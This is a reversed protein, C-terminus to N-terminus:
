PLDYVEVIAIGVTNNVGSVQATYTGPPLTVILAADRSGATLAFAGVSGFAATLEAATATAPAVPTSWNDNTTLPTTDGQRIVELKPDALTGTVGLSGLTPGVGRILLRRPSTGRIVFGGTLVDAGTGVRARCSLNVLTTPTADLEYVEVLAVGTAAPGTGVGSVQITYGGPPLTTVLAADRSGDALAFAGQAAGASKLAAIDPVNGWDDNLLVPQNASDFVTVTPNALTGGLGFAALTPGVARILLTKPKTGRITIGPIVVNAGTGVNARASLNVLGSFDFSVTAPASAVSGASNTAVCTFDGAYAATLNTLELVPETTNCFDQGRCLWTYTPKPFGTAAATLTISAGLTTRVSQPQLTFEPASSAPSVILDVVTAASGAVNAATITVARRGAATPAGSLLGTRADLALGAPLSAASWTVPSNAASLALRFPQGVRARAIATAAFVPPKATTIRDPLEAYNLYGIFMEDNTQEGFRVTANPNPNFPNQASNDFAGRVRIVTGAPLRKPQALRYNSQWDFHYDPVNLLTESTGDPYHAEYRFRKGRYHMHPNLEYLLVDKTSSPTFSAEREYDKAGPPISLSTTNASKTLLERTPARSAFYFGLQTEDTEPQGTTTYHMQVTVKSGRRLFKGSDEPFFTQDVGPVYGAFFGNLGPLGTTVLALLQELQSGELVLAHHVVRRNGPKVYVARLWKDETTPLTLEPYDYTLTGTARLEKKPLSLVLDPPGLPWDGGPPPPAVALPDAAFPGRPGGARAWHYLTASEAPTLAASNAFVGYRPDAHWPSMRKVLMSQRIQAAKGALDSFKAYVHPAINGTSHCSICRALVIPAVETAYDPVAAPPLDLARATASLGNRTGAAPATGAVVAAVADSAFNQTPAALGAPDANDLPGRYALTAAASDIVLVELQRTVGFETAVLQADDILVPTPNNFLTQEATIAARDTALNSDIQWITVASVPFRTRLARLAAATQLARPHGLGTFVLVVAKTTSEYYLERTTGTHDTLRFNPVMSGPPLGGAAETMAFVRPDFPRASTHDMAALRSAPVFALVLAALFLLPFRPM